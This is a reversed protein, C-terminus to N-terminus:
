GNIDLVIKGFHKGSEMLRHADAAQALPLVDSVLPKIAGSAVHPLVTAEFRDIIASKEAISRARLVSGLLQQRKVMMVALNIEGKVGGMVGILVLRGYVALSKLNKGLYAAGIHDLIVDVGRKATLHAIEQAFDQEKYDIVDNVGLKSVRDVKGTSATVIIRAQPRLAKVIQIASTNVGGGGGHLLVTETDGLNGLEIVNLYATIYTECLCAGEFFSVSDPLKFCHGAYAVVYEAYGGGGVLAAVRDGVAIKVASGSAQGDASASGQSPGIQVVTGSVELGLVDSEGPPPPYNGERQVIDPRNVSTAEVKILLQGPGVAPKELDAIQLVEPGGFKEIVIAKM